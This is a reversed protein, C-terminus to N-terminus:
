ACTVGHPRAIPRRYALGGALLVIVLGSGAAAGIAASSLDIAADPTAETASPAHARPTAAVIEMTDGSARVPEGPLNPTASAAPAGAIGAIAAGSLATAIRRKATTTSMDVGRPERGGPATSHTSPASRRPAHGHALPPWYPPRHALAIKGELCTGQRRALIPKRNALNVNV